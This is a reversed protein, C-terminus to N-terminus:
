YLIMSYKDKETQSIENLMVGELDMWTKTSPLIKYKKHSLLIGNQTHTHTCTHTHTNIEDKNCLWQHVSLNNGYRTFLALIFMHVYPHM